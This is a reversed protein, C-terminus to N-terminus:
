SEVKEDVIVDVKLKQEFTKKFAKKQNHVGWAELQCDQNAVIELVIKKDDLKRFGVRRIVGTHSHDLSEALQLFMAVVRVIERSRKGLKAYQRHNEKPRKKRHYFGLTAMINIETQDFGLLDANNVLYYTHDQHNTHSLFTGIDHLLAAYELLEREWDGFDHLQIMQASDFLDTAVRAVNRAHAEDFGCVRGFQLVSHERESMGEMLKTRESRLLYEHLLGFRLGQESIRIEPIELDQMLTHLVAAGAIINDARHLSIGPIERREELSLALLTEVVHELHEFKLVDNRERPRNLFRYAAIEALNAITGSSGLAFDLRYQRITSLSRITANRIHRQILAYRAPPLTGTEDPISFLATLRHAGLKFTDLYHYQSQNGIILNTSGGGIDIFLGQAEGLNIGRSAGLYILRAEELGSVIRVDLGAEQKLYDLLEKKNKAERTASTAVTYIEGAAHVRAMEAFKMCVLTTREIAEQRLNQDVFVGEGLQVVEKEDKLITYTRDLNINVLLLRVSTTGIDIFATVGERAAAAGIDM